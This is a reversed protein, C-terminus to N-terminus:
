SLSNTASGGIRKVDNRGLDEPTISNVGGNWYSEESSSPTGGNVIPVFSVEDNPQLSRLRSSRPNVNICFRGRKVEWHEPVDDLWEVGSPKYTPYPPLTM